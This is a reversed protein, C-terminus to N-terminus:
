RRTVMICAIDISATTFLIEYTSATELWYNKHTREFKM